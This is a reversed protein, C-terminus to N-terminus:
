ATIEIAPRAPRAAVATLMAQVTVTAIEPGDSMSGGSGPAAPPGGHARSRPRLGYRATPRAAAPRTVPVAPTASVRRAIRCPHVTLGRYTRSAPASAATTAPVVRGNPVDSKM